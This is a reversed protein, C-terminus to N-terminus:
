CVDASGEKLNSPPFDSDSIGVSFRIMENNGFFSILHSNHM